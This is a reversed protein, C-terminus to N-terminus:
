AFLGSKLIQVCIKRFILPPNLGRKWFEPPNCGGLGGGWVKAGMNVTKVSRSIRNQQFDICM